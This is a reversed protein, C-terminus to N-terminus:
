RRTGRESLVARAVDRDDFPLIRGMVEQGSEHGKGAILVTDGPGAAGIAHEIATRRDGIEVLESDHGAAGALLQRRIEAPDETRPNDDTVVVVDALEAALRGMLERKGADRDGGAGIVVVLRGPTIPRLATLTAEVADPKHAYDVVVAFGDADIREMRGPVSGGEAIGRAAAALEIGVEGICALACLANAVNFGGPLPVSAEVPGGEPPHVAFSSGTASVVVDDARWDAAADVAFTRTPVLARDALQRGHEDDVNVLARRSRKPTFLEAKAAFYAELSPHFDLHDRGLNTFATLDFVVGDVRGMVIAHSSVEMACVDVGRERMVAFLAHLEPAEPTTLATKVPQGDVWTGMTGVVATRRGAAAVGTGILQTVTTKGQTGTLGVLTLDRAPEGYVFAAARGVLTRPQERVLVPVGTARAEAAGARDTLVAVAGAAVADAAFRAGHTRSGPLAAYLDGPRVLRSNLTLGTIPTAAPGEVEIGLHASVDALSVPQVHLPRTPVGDHPDDAPM